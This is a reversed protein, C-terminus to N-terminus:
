EAVRFRKSATFPVGTETIGEIEIRYFSPIDSTWFQVPRSEEGIELNGEWHLTIRNDPDDIDTPINIGYRPTFFQTPPKFGRIFASILGSEDSDPLGTGRRTQVVIAGGAARAGYFGLEDGRRFVNVTKVEETYLQRLQSLDSEINDIIILPPPLGGRLNTFGTRITIENNNATVGAMQNLAALFPLSNAVENEDFDIRQSPRDSTRLNQEFQDETEIQEGTVTIEDLEGSMQVDVFQETRQQAQEAREAFSISANYDEARLSDSALATGSQQHVPYYKEPLGDFVDDIEIRVFDKGEENNARITVMESGVFDIGDLVFIGNEDTTMLDMTQHDNGLSVIVSANEVPRKRISTKVSGTVSLSKEPLSFSQIIEPDKIRDMDYARWGQTMLLLDLAEDANEDSSFYYGPDEIHGRIEAQLYFWSRINQSNSSYPYVSDDYVSLSATAPVASKTRDLVSFELSVEDRLEAADDSVIQIAVEDGPNKNFALREAAPQGDAGLVTFHVVGSSFQEKPINVIGIGDKIILLSAYYIEGRVHAFLILSPVPNALETKVIVEFYNNITNVNMLIGQPLIQPLQFEKGGARAVYDAGPKPTFEIQGMGLHETEFPFSEGSSKDVIEGSIDMGKGNERLVKFALRTSINEILHGSEPLFTLDFAEGSNEAASVSEESFVQIEKKFVYSDGFNKAWKTYAVISYTGAQENDTELLISGEGRGSNLEVAERKAVTGDPEVLEVYLVSSIESPFLRTGATAYVSFWIRDGYFYWNRDTHLYLHERPLEEQLAKFTEIFDISPQHEQSFSYKPTVFCLMFGTVGTLLFPFVVRKFTPKQFISPNM